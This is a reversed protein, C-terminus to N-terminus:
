RGFDNEEPDYMEKYYGIYEFTKEPSITYYYGCVKRYLLLFKEDFCFDLLGDLLREIEQINKSKNRLINKVLLEYIPYAEIALDTRSEIISRMEKLLNKGKM